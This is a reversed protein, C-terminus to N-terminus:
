NLKNTKKMFYTGVQNMMDQMIEIAKSEELAGLDDRLLILMQGCAGIFARKTETRQVSHMNKEKLGVRQLYLHYQHELDFTKNKAM